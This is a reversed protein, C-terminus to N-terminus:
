KIKYLLMKELRTVYDMPPPGFLFGKRMLPHIFRNNKMRMNKSVKTKGDRIEKSTKKMMPPNLHMVQGRIRNQMDGDENMKTFSEQPDFGIKIQELIEKM